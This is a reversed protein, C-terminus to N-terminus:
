NIEREHIYNINNYNKFYDKDRYECHISQRSGGHLKYLRGDLGNNRIYNRIHKREKELDLDLPKYHTIINPSVKLVFMHPETFKYVQQLKGDWGRVETLYFYNKQKATFDVFQKKHIWDYFTVFSLYQRKVELVKKRKGKVKVKHRFKKNDSYQENNICDLISQFFESDKSLAVDERLIFKRVYGKQYPKELTVLPQKRILNWIEDERKSLSLLYKDRSAIVIRRKTHDSRFRGFYESDM